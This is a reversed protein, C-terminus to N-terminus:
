DQQFLAEFPGALLSILKEPPEQVLQPTAISAM